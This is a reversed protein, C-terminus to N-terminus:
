FILYPDQKRSKIGLFVITCVLSSRPGGSRVFGVRGSWGTFLGGWGLSCIPDAEPWFIKDSVQFFDSGVRFKYMFFRIKGLGVM